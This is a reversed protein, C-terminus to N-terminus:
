ERGGNTTQTRPSNGYADWDRPEPLDTYRPDAPGLQRRVDWNPDRQRRVDWNPDRVSDYDFLHDIDRQRPPRIPEQDSALAEHARPSLRGSLNQAVFPAPVGCRDCTVGTDHCRQECPMAPYGTPTLRWGSAVM